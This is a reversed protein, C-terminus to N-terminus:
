STIETSPSGSCSMGTLRLLTERNRRSSPTQRTQRAADPSFAIRDLEETLTEGALTRSITMFSETPPLTTKEALIADPVQHITARGLRM